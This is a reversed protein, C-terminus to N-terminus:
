NPDFLPVFVAVLVLLNVQDDYFDKFQYESRGKSKCPGVEFEAGDPQPAQPPSFGDEAAFLLDAEEGNYCGAVNNLVDAPSFPVFLM